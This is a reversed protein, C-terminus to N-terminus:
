PGHGEAADPAGGDSTGGDAIAGTWRTETRVQVREPEPDGRLIKAVALRGRNERVAEIRHVADSVDCAQVRWVRLTTVVETVIVERLAM